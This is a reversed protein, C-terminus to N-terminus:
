SPQIQWRPPCHVAVSTALLISVALTLAAELDELSSVAGSCPNGVAM